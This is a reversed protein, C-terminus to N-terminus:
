GNKGRLSLYQRQGLYEETQRNTQGDMQRDTQEPSCSNKTTCVLIRYTVTVIFGWDSETGIHEGFHTPTCHLPIKSRHGQCKHLQRKTPSSLM